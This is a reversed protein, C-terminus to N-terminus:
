NKLIIKKSITINKTGQYTFKVLYCGPELNNGSLEVKYSGKPQNGSLLTLQLEGKLDYLEFEVHGDQQLSYDIWTKNSFPNPYIQFTTIDGTLNEDVSTLMLNIYGVYTELPTFTTSGAIYELVVKNYLTNTAQKWIQVNITNGSVFGDITETDPDDMSVPILIPANGSVKIAGVCVGCDYVGIEDGPEVTEDFDLAITMPMYPNNQYVPIFFETDEKVSRFQINDSTANCDFSLSTDQSVKVYYGEGPMFYDFGFSWQGNPPPFPLHVIAQGQDNIVKILIPSEEDMLPLLVEQALQDEACPMSIINWGERLPIEFPINVPSGEIPLEINETVKVYYGQENTLDGISNSWHGDPPPFPLHVICNGDQDLVKILQNNNILPEFINLMDLNDPIVRFSVLNWGEILYVIQTITTVGEIDVIATGLPTFVENYGPYTTYTATVSNVMGTSPSWLKYLIENGPQFGNTEGTGDDMSAIMELFAGNILEETLVGAGVCIEEGNDPDIDFIGIEDGTVMNIEDITAKTIFITMPQFPPEGVPQFVKDVTTFIIQDGYGTGASNTAYARVFYETSPSLGTILSTFEGTGAGDVTFDDDLTPTGTTNWCVGRATVNAGGDNTVNGSCQASTKTINTVPKTTVTPLGISETGTYDQNIQDETVNTYSRSQPTFSWGSKEPTADGSWGHSIQKSYVVM